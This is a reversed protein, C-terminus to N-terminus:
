TLDIKGKKELALNKKMVRYYAKFLDWDDKDFDSMKMAGSKEIRDMITTFPRVFDIIAHKNKKQGGNGGELTSKLWDFAQKTIPNKSLVNQFLTYQRFGNVNTRTEVSQEKWLSDFSQWDKIWKVVRPIKEPNLILHNSDTLKLWQSHYLDKTPKSGGKLEEWTQKMNTKISNFFYFDNKKFGHKLSTIQRASFDLYAMISRIDNLLEVFYYKKEKNDYNNSLWEFIDETRKSTEPDTRMIEIFINYQRFGEVKRMKADSQDYQQVFNWWGEWFEILKDTPTKVTFKSTYIMKDWLNLVEEPNITKVPLIPKKRKLSISSTTTSSKGSYNTVQLSQKEAKTLNPFLLDLKSKGLRHLPIKGSPIEPTILKEKQKRQFSAVWTEVLRELNSGPYDGVTFNENTKFLMSLVQKWGTLPIKGKNSKIRTKIKEMIPTIRNWKIIYGMMEANRGEILDKRFELSSELLLKLSKLMLNLARLSINRSGKSIVRFRERITNRMQTFKNKDSIEKGRIKTKLATKNEEQLQKKKNLIEKKYDKLVEGKCGFEKIEDLSLCQGKKKTKQYFEKARKLDKDLGLTCRDKLWIPGVGCRFSTQDIRNQRRWYSDKTQELLNNWRNTIRNAWYQNSHKAVTPSREIVKFAYIRPIKSWDLKPKIGRTM